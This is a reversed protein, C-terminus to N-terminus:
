RQLSNLHREVDRLTMDNRGDARNRDADILSYGHASHRLTLGQTRARRELLQRRLKEAKVKNADASV